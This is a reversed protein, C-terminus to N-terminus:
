PAGDFLQNTTNRVTQEWTKGLSSMSDQFTRSEAVLAGNKADRVDIKIERMFTRMDWSWRDQYTVIFATDAPREGLGGATVTVGRARIAEAIIQEIHRQDEGHNEVFFVAGPDRATGTLPTASTGACAVALLAILIMSMMSIRM